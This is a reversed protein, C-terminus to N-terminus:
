RGRRRRQSDQKEELERRLAALLEQRDIGAAATESLVRSVADEVRRDLARAAKAPASKAVFTGRRSVTQLLGERELLSYAKAVTNPNLGLDEALQRVAPLPSGPPLEEGRVRERIQDMIQVYVPIPSRTDITLYTTQGRM